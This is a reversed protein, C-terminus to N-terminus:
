SIEKETARISQILIYGDRGMDTENLPILPLGELWLVICPERLSILNYNSPEIGSRGTANFKVGNGARGREKEFDSPRKSLLLL